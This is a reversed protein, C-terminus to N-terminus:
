LTVIALTHTAGCSLIFVAFLLFLSPFVLDRRRMILRVLALPILLYSLAVLGDSVAHLWILEPIRLCYGHPMFDTAFLRQFSELM